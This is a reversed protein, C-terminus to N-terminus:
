SSAGGKRPPPPGPLSQPKVVDENCRKFHEFADRGDLKEAVNGLAWDWGPRLLALCALSLLVLQRDDERLLSTM